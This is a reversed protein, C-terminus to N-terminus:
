ENKKLCKINIKKPKLKIKTKEDIFWSFNNLIEKIIKKNEKIRKNRTGIIPISTLPDFLHISKCNNGLNWGISNTFGKKIINILM